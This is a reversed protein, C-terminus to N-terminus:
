EDIRNLTAQGLMGNGLLSKSKDCLVPTVLLMLSSLAFHGGSAASYFEIKINVGTSKYRDHEFWLRWYQGM